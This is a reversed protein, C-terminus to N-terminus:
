LRDILKQVETSVFDFYCDFSQAEGVISDVIAPWDAAHFDRQDGLKRLLGEPVKKAEFVNRVLAVNEDSSLVVGGEVVINHVDYFDRARGRKHRVMPYDPLQQCIARLKEAAIMAPTYVYCAFDDIEIQEKGDCYEYKSIDIKFTRQAGPGNVEFSQRRLDEIRGDLREFDRLEILKFKLMYGGWEPHGDIPTSPKASFRADFVVLGHADLRNELTSVLRVRANEVSAFDGDMSFDLDLSSRTGIGHILNLASGGKLVLTELLEDDAFVATIIVRRLQNLDM